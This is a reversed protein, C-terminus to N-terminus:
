EAESGGDFEVLGNKDFVAKTTERGSGSLYSYEIIIQKKEPIEGVISGHHIFSISGNIDNYFHIANDTTWGTTEFFIGNHAPYINSINHLCPEPFTQSNSYNVKTGGQFDKNCSSVLTLLDNKDARYLMIDTKFVSFGEDKVSQNLYTRLFYAENNNQPNFEAESEFHNADSSMTVWGKQVTKFQVKNKVIKKETIQAFSLLCITLLFFLFTQKM